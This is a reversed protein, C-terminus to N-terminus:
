FICFYRRYGDSMHVYSFKISTFLACIRGGFEGLHILLSHHQQEIRVIKVDSETESRFTFQRRRADCVDLMLQNGKGVYVIRIGVNYATIRLLCMDFLGHMELSRVSLPRSNM